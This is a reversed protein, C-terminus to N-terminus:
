RDNLARISAEAEDSISTLDGDGTPHGTVIVTGAVFDEPRIRNRIIRTALWNANQGEHKANEAALVTVPIEHPQPLAEFPGGLVDTVEQQTLEGERREIVGEPDITLYVISM